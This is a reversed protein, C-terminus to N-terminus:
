FNVYLPNGDPDSFHMVRAPFGAARIVGRLGFLSVVAPPGFEVRMGSGREGRILGDAALEEYAAVVTNRSVRLLRALARSSPLRAGRPAANGRIAAAIQAYIQGQLPTPLDRDLEIAPMFFEPKRNLIPARSHSKGNEKLEAVIDEPPFCM